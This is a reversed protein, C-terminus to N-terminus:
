YVILQGNIIDYRTVRGNGDVSYREGNDYFHRDDILVYTSRKCMGDNKICNIFNGVTSDIVGGMNIYQDYASCIFLNDMFGLWDDDRYNNFRQAESVNQDDVWLSGDDKKYLLSQFDKGAPYKIYGLAEAFIKQLEDHNVLPVGGSKLHEHYWHAIFRTRGMEKISVDNLTDIQDLAGFWGTLQGDPLCKLNLTDITIGDPITVLAENVRALFVDIYYPVKM